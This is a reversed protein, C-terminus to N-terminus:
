NNNKQCPKQYLFSIHWNKHGKYVHYRTKQWSIPNKTMQPLMTVVGFGCTFGGGCQSEPSFISKKKHYCSLFVQPIIFM